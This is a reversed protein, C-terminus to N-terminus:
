AEKKVEKIAVLVNFRDFNRDFYEKAQEETCASVYITSKFTGNKERLTLRFRKM